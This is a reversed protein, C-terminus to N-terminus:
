EDEDDEWEDEQKNILVENCYHQLASRIFGEPFVEEHNEDLIAKIEAHYELYDLDPTIVEDFYVLYTVGKLHVDVMFDSLM